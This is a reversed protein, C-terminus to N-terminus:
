LPGNTETALGALADYLELLRQTAADVDGGFSIVGDQHGAMVLARAKKLGADRWLRGMEEAMDTTGYGVDRRATPLRGSFHRWLARHHVHVIAGIGADLQYIAGHTLAESSAAVAGTCSLTNRAIDFDDVVAFDDLTSRERDATQTGSILFRPQGSQNNGVRVSINGFGTGDPYTHILRRAHLDDRCAMLRLLEHKATPLSFAARRWRVRYKVVGEGPGETV